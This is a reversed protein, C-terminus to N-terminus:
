IEQIRTRSLVQLTPGSGSPHWMRIVRSRVCTIMLRFGMGCRGCRYSRVLPSKWPRDDVTTNVTPSVELHDAWGSAIWFRAERLDIAIEAFAVEPGGPQGCAVEPKGTM